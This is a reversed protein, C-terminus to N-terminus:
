ALGLENCRPQSRPRRQLLRLPQFHLPTKRLPHLLVPLLLPLKCADRRPRRLGAGATGFGGSIGSKIISWGRPWSRRAPAGPSSFPARRRPLRLVGLPALLPRGAEAFGAQANHRIFADSAQSIGISRSTVTTQGLQTPFGVEATAEDNVAFAVRVASNAIISKARSYISELQHVDQFILIARGYARLYGMGKELPELYGLAACEDLLLGAAPPGSSPLRTGARFVANMSLGVMVRLFGAYVSLLEEPVILFLSQPSTYLGKLDFDSWASVAAAVGGASWPETGKLINSLINSTEEVDLTRLLQGAVERM